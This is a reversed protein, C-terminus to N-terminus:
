AEGEDACEALEAAYEADTLVRGHFGRWDDYHVVILAAFADLAEEESAYYGSYGHYRALHYLLNPSNVSFVSRRLIYLNTAEGPLLEGPRAEVDWTHGDASLIREMVQRASLGSIAPSSDTTITYTTYTTM